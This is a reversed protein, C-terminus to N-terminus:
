QKSSTTINLHVVIEIDEPATVVEDIVACCVKEIAKAKDYDESAFTIEYEGNDNKYKANWYSM